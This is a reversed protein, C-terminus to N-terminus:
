SIGSCGLVADDRAENLDLSTKGKQYRSVWTTASFLGNLPHQLLLKLITSHIFSNIFSPSCQGTVSSSLCSRSPQQTRYVNRNPTSSSTTIETYNNVAPRVLSAEHSCCVLSTKIRRYNVPTDFTDAAAHTPSEYYVTSLSWTLVNVLWDDTRFFRDDDLINDVHPAVMVQLWLAGSYM